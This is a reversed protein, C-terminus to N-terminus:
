QRKGASGSADLSVSCPLAAGTTGHGAGAGAEGGYRRGAGCRSTQFSGLAVTLFMAPHHALNYLVLGQLQVSAGARSAVLVPVQGLDLGAVMPVYPVAAATRRAGYALAAAKAVQAVAAPGGNPDVDSATSSTMATPDTPVPETTVIPDPPRVSFTLNHVVVFGGPPWSAPPPGVVAGSPLRLNHSAHSSCNPAQRTSIAALAAQLEDTTSVDWPVVMDSAARAAACDAPRFDDSFQLPIRLDTSTFCTLETVVPIGCKVRLAAIPVRSGLGLAGLGCRQCCQRVTAHQARSSDPSEGLGFLARKVSAVCGWSDTCDCMRMFGTCGTIHPRVECTVTLEEATM